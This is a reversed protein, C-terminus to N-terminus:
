YLSAILGAARTPGHALDSTAQRARACIADFGSALRELGPMWDDRDLLVGLGSAEIRRGLLEHNRHGPWVAVPVGCSLAQYSSGSGGHTLCLRSRALVSPGAVLAAQPVDRDVSRAGARVVESAGCIQALRDIVRQPVASGTSGFAAFLVDPAAARAPPRPDGPAWTCAGVVHHNAPMDAPVVAAPDAFLMQDAAYLGRADAVEPLRLRARLASWADRNGNWERDQLTEETGLCLFHNSICVTAAPLAPMALRWPIPSCDFGVVTPRSQQVLAQIAAGFREPQDRTCEVPHLEFESGLLRAHYGHLDAGAFSSEIGHLTRLQRAIALCRSVHGLAPGVVWLIRRGADGRAAFHHQSSRM